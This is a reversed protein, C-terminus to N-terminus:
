PKRGLAGTMERVLWAAEPKSNLNKAATFEQRDRTRVKLDHYVSHGATAGVDTTIDLVGAEELTRQRKFGLWSTEIEVREPTVRVRSRRFWLDFTFATMLLGIVGFILPFLLPAHKWVMLVVAGTWILGFVTAGSAFGPNRAAPFVFERGGEPMDNVRIHSHIQQRIEDLSMQYPATPDDSPAPMEPLKFVPVAFAAQFDPGPVRASAELQWHIGDGKGATSEPQDAPVLFFVPIATHGEPEPLDPRLWKEDQWLIKESTHRDKGAGTTTRRICSLRLHLGHEPRLRTNLQILGELTGGLAGPLAAMEFVSQGYRRWALTTKFTYTLLALGVVPFILVILAEHNGRHWEQPVVAISIASSIGCWLITFIWFLVLPKGSSSVVRGAAWDERNLWPKELSEPIPSKFKAAQLTNKKSNIGFILLPFGASVIMVSLLQIAKQRSLGGGLGDHLFLVLAFFGMLVFPVSLLLARRRATKPDPAPSSEEKFIWSM